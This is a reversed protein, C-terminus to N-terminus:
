YPRFKRSHRMQAIRKKDEEFKKRLEALHDMKAQRQQFSYFNVLKQQKKKKTGKRKKVEDVKELHPKKKKESTVTVWGESDPEQQGAAKEREKKADYDKMVEKVEEALTKRTVFSANYEQQWKKVGTLVPRKETSLILETGAPLALVKKLTVGQKFVVYAVKFGLILEKSSFHPYKPKTAPLSSPRKHLHVQTVEGYQSFLHTLSEQNCYPPVNIVFLTRGVPKADSHTRVTHQKWLLQHGVKSEQSFKLVMVKFGLVTDSHDM